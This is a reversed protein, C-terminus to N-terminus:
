KKGSRHFSLIYNITDEDTTFESRKSRFNGSGFHLERSWETLTKTKGKYTVLHNSRANLPQKAKEIFTCNDPGYGKNVDIREITLTDM